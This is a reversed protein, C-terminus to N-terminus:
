EAAASPSLGLARMLEPDPNPDSMQRYIGFPDDRL